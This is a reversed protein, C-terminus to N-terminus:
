KRNAEVIRKLNNLGAEFDPGILRDLFLGFYRRVPNRGLEGGNYWIVETGEGAAEFTIGGKSLRQGNEYDLDYWLGRAPDSRTITLKGVGLKDGTWRYIAGVGDEPGEFSVTMTPDKEKTWATWAPWKKLSNLMPFIDKAKANIVVRREIRYQGPLLLSVVLLTVIVAGLLALYIKIKNM